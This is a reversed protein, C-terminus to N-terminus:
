NHSFWKLYKEDKGGNKWLGRRHATAEQYLEKFLEFHEPDINRRDEYYYAYGEEVMLANVCSQLSRIRRGRSRPARARIRRNM